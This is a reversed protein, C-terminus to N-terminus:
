VVETGQGGGVGVGLGPPAPVLNFWPLTRSAPGQPGTFHVQARFLSKRGRTSVVGCLAAPSSSHFVPQVETRKGGWGSVTVGFEVKDLGAGGPSASGGAYCESSAPQTLSSRANDRGPPGLDGPRQVPSTM